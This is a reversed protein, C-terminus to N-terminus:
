ALCHSGEFWYIPPRFFHSWLCADFLSGDSGWHILVYDISWSFWLNIRCNTHSVPLWKLGCRPKTAVLVCLLLSVHLGNHSHFSKGWFDMYLVLIWKKWFRNRTMFLWEKCLYNSSDVLREVVLIWISPQRTVWFVCNVSRKSVDEIL